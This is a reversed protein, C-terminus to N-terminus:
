VYVCLFFLINESDLTSFRIILSQAFDRRERTFLEIRESNGWCLPIPIVPARYISCRVYVCSTVRPVHPRQYLFLMAAARIGTCCRPSATSRAAAARDYFFGGAADAERARTVCYSYNASVPYDPDTVIRTSCRWICSRECRSPYRARPCRCPFGPTRCSWCPAARTSRRAPWTGPRWSRCASARRPSTTRRTRARIRALSATRATPTSRSTAAPSRPRPARRPRCQRLNRRSRCIRCM